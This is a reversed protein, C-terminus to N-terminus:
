LAGPILKVLKVITDGVIDGASGAPYTGPLPTIWPDGASGASNLVNGMTGPDNYTAALAQWVAAALSEPSLPSSTSSTGSLYGIAYSGATGTIVITASGSLGAEAGIQGTATFTITASGQGAAISILTGDATLSFTATGSGSVILGGTGTATLTITSSGDMPKGLVATGNSELTIFTENRSSLGGPQIPLIWAVPNRAGTPFASLPDIDAEGAWFNNKRGDQNYLGRMTGLNGQAATTSSISQFRLPNKGYRANNGVLTM